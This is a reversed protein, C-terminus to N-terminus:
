RYYTRSELTPGLVLINILMIVHINAKVKSLSSIVVPRKKAHREAAGQFKHISLKKWLQKWFEIRRYTWLDLPIYYLLVTKRV